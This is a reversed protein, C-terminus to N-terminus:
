QNRAAEKNDSFGTLRNCPMATLGDSWSFPLTKVMLNHDVKRAMVSFSLKRIILDHANSYNAYSIRGQSTYDTEQLHRKFCM